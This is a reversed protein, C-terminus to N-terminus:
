ELIKNKWQRYVAVYDNFYPISISEIKKASLEFIDSTEKPDIKDIAAKGMIAAGFATAEELETLAIEADPYLASLLSIYAENKRFGGEVFITGKGNFGTMNLSSCSEIALSLNVVAFATEFNKFFRPTKKHSQIEDFDYITNNEVIKHKESQIIFKNKENIIKSYFEKNFLPFSQDGNIQKLIKQYDDFMGGGNFVVTKVPKSYIDLNYFVMSELEEETFDTSTTPHMSVCWTGTSNLIFNKNGKVIYPVLSSNSDHIGMTVVCDDPLATEAQFQPTITGLVEWSKKIEKPLKSSIGLKEPLSSYDMKKHNFLYTHCGVCTPDAGIEGTFLYGFYQPFYLIKWANKWKKPWKKQWFFVKKGINILSGIETTGTEKKLEKPSGFTQYFEERFEAGAETTYAVPPVALDGNKDIAVATAGHTTISIAKIQYKTAFSKLQQKIWVTMNEIDEYMVGDELFDDFSQFVSDISNLNQDFILVKKNTKGIDIVAIYSDSV